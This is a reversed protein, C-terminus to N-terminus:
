FVWLKKDEAGHLMEAGLRDVIRAAQSGPGARGQFLVGIQGDTIRADYGQPGYSPSITEVFVGMFTSILLGLMTLEFLLVISTPITQFAM